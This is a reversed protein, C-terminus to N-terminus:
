CNKEELVWAFKDAESRSGDSRSFRWLTANESFRELIRGRIFCAVMYMDFNLGGGDFRM